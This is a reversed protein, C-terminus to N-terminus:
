VAKEGLFIQVRSCTKPKRRFYTSSPYLTKSFIYIIESFVFYTKVKEFRDSIISACVRRHSLPYLM